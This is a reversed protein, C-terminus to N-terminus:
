PNELANKIKDINEITLSAPTKLQELAALIDNVLDLAGGPEDIYEVLSDAIRERRQKYYQESWFRNTQFNAAGLDEISMIKFLTGCKM